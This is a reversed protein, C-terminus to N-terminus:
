EQYRRCMETLDFNFPAHRVSALFIPLYHYQLEPTRCARPDTLDSFIISFKSEAM